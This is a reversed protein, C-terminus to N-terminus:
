EWGVLCTTRELEGMTITITHCMSFIHWFGGHIDV